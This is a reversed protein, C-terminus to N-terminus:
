HVTISGGEKTDHGAKDWVAYLYRHSGLTLQRSTNLTNSKSTYVNAGDINLVISNIGVSSTATAAFAVPNTV